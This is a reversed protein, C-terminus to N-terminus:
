QKVFKQVKGSLQALYVDGSDSAAVGHGGAATGNPLRGVVEGKLNLLVAGAWIHQDKTMFLASVAELVPWQTLFHGNSDFVEIRHTERDSVYVKGEADVVVGHPLEFQGPGTGRTGWELLYHGDHSFKVVRNGAYGDSIYFDGNPAFAVDTPLNFTDHGAGAVGNHGLHMLIKGQPNMKYIVQGPADVAWINHEPDVRISHAGCSDCGAPGYIASYLAHGPVRDAPAIAGVKGESFMGDGWSRVFKGNSEFEMIPHAGRHLVLIHGQADVGVGSVQVFNWPGGPTGAANLVQAPWEPVEKYGMPPADAGLKPAGAPQGLALPSLSLALPFLHLRM